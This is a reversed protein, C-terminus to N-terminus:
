DNLSAEIRKKKENFFKNIKKILTETAEGNFAETIKPHSFGTYEALKKKDGPDLNQKWNKLIKEAVQM